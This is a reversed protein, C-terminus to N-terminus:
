YNPFKPVDMSSRFSFIHHIDGHELQENEAIFMQKNLKVLGLPFGPTQEQSTTNPQIENHKFLFMLIRIAVTQVMLDDHM